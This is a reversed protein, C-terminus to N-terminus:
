IRLKSTENRSERQTHRMRTIEPEYTKRATMLLFATKDKMDTLQFYTRATHKTVPKLGLEVGEYSARIAYDGNRTKVIAANKFPLEENPDAPLFPDNKALYPQEGLALRQRDVHDLILDSAKNVDAMVSVIFKPEKKLVGIWSDLYAASNDTVKSDFGMSHGIMAATLEAILEEKVYKPDGFKGGPERNLREPTLTSHTMEHLMTSYYEMGGRYTAEPTTGINFKAKMPLVVIDRRPSYYAGNERKDAQIPCLWGQSQVMRDLAAHAYMGETDRLEPVKFKDLLKQMREPQVEALNTQAVNYVPFSKIFPIVEMEKKEEKSLTRYEDSSIKRGNADKVLMDWYVVLFAKEGKLVHAKLNHAQNFTLYVPLPYGKEVSHLQLFFSNSGSYNRGGVNQPLGAFGSAGGIWGQKWDIAKMQEMRLIMMEAFKEIAAQGANGSSSPNGFAM